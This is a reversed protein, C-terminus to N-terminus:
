SEHKVYRQLPSLERYELVTDGGKPGDEAMALDRRLNDILPKVEDGVVPEAICCTLSIAFDHEGATFRINQVELEKRLRELASIGGTIDAQKLCLAFENEHMVYADDFSRLSVKILEAVLKIYGKLEEPQANAKIDEFHDIKVLAVCFSRGHRALRQLEQMIDSPLRVANRLGTLADYGAGETLIERELRRLHAIFQEYLISFSQFEPLSPKKQTERTKEMLSDAMKLVDTHLATLKEIIELDIRDDQNAQVAWQAFSTPKAVSASLTQSDNYFFFCMVRQFWESHEELIDMFDNSDDHKPNFTM